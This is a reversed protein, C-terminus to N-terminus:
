ISGFSSAASHDFGSFETSATDVATGHRMIVEKGENIGDMIMQQAQAHSVSAQETTFFEALGNLTNMAQQVINDLEQSYTMLGHTYDAIGATHYKIMDDM